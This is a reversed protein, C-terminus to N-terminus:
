NKPVVESREWSGLADDVGPLMNFIMSASSPNSKLLLSRFCSVGCITAAASRTTTM